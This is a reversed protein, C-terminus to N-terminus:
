ESDVINKYKNYFDVLFLIKKTYSTQPLGDFVEKIKDIEEGKGLVKFQKLKGSDLGEKLAKKATDRRLQKSHETYSNTNRKKKEM